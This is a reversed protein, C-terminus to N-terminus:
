LKQPIEEFKQFLLFNRQPLKLDIETNLAPANTQKPTKIDGNKLISIIFTM